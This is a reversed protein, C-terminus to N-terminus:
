HVFYPGFAAQSEMEEGVQDLKCESNEINVLQRLLFQGCTKRWIRDSGECTRKNEGAGADGQFKQPVVCALSTKM